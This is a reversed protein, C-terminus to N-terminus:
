RGIAALFDLVAADFRAPQELNLLHGAGDFVQKRAGPIKAILHDAIKQIDANDRAGVLVLAPARIEGARQYAPPALEKEVEPQLWCRENGHALARVRDRTRPNTAAPKLYDSELWGDVAASADHARVARDIRRGWDTKTRSWPFGSLGPGALVLSRVVEPHTLALDVAIRGGLSLGVLHARAIGLKKLLVYLDEHSQYAEVADASKGFGRVDLRLVRYRRAFAEFQEDWLRHDLQGGELLVVVDGRGRLEYFLKTGNVAALGSEGEARARASWLGVLLVLIARWTRM